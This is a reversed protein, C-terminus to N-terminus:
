YNAIYTTLTISTESGKMQWYVTVDIQKLNPQLMTVTAQRQFASFGSVSAKTDGTFAYGTDKIYEMREQALNLALDVNEIDTSAFMGTNFAWIISVVGITLIVISILVELLTFGRKTLM